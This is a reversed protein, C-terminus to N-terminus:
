PWYVYTDATIWTPTNGSSPIQVSSLHSDTFTAMLERVRLGLDEQEEAEDSSNGGNDSGGGGGANNNRGARQQRTSARLQRSPLGTSPASGSGPTTRSSRSGTGSSPHQSSAARRYQSTSSLKGDPLRKARSPNDPTEELKLRGIEIAPTTHRSM